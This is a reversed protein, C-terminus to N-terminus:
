LQRNQWRGVLYGAGILLLNGIMVAAQAISEFSYFRRLRQPISRTLLRRLLVSEAALPNRKYQSVLGEMMARTVGERFSYGFVYKVRAREHNVKHYVIAEPEFVIAAHPIM